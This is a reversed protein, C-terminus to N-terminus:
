ISMSFCDEITRGYLPMIESLNGEKDEYSIEDFRMRSLIVAEGTKFQFTHTGKEALKGCMSVAAILTKYSLHMEPFHVKYNGPPLTGALVRAMIVAGEPTSMNEGYLLLGQLQNLSGKESIIATNM